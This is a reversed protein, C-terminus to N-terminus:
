VIESAALRSAMTPRAGLFNSTVNKPLAPGTREHTENHLFIVDKLIQEILIDVQKEHNELLIHCTDADSITECNLKSFNRFEKIPPLLPIRSFDYVCPNPIM